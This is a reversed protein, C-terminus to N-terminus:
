NISREVIGSARIEKMKTVARQLFLKEDKKRQIEDEKQQQKMQDLSNKSQLLEITLKEIVSNHENNKNTIELEVREIHQTLKQENQPINTNQKLLQRLFQNITGSININKSKLALQIDVDVSITM